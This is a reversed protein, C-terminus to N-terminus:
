KYLPSERKLFASRANRAANRVVEPLAPHIYIMGLLDDLTGKMYMFAILMHVMNSAEEGIIHAGLLEKTVADFLLKVFGHSSRLAMGMASKAYPNFGVVYEKGERQLQEETKGVSGIQPNSFIAHPVPPYQIPEDSPDSFLTRFLYEGEFNASHRFLNRGICDGFAWINEATTRLRDDVKIFGKEDCAVGTKELCLTKTSPEIGTAVFLCDAELVTGNSLALSFIGNRYEVREPVVGKHIPFRESFVREFEESVQRDEARVMQSRVVFEVETGLAGYFYGLEVAIYGGGLVIMREPQKTQKLAEYYTIYPTGELGPINPIYPHAGPALFFGDASIREGNVEIVYEDVFRADGQYLDVNPDKEYLPKISDSDSAITENVRTILGEFDVSMTGDISIEFKHADMIVSAVDAAHILMKSPICGHNLCTGGLRDREIVAVKYGLNAVPRVLKSGGGSGLVVADYHKVIANREILGNLIICGGWNSFM